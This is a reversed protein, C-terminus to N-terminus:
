RDADLQSAYDIVAGSTDPSYEIALPTESPHFKLPYQANIQIFHTTPVVNFHLLVNTGQNSNYGCILINEDYTFAIRVQESAM